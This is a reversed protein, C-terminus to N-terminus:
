APDSRRVLATVFGERWTLLDASEEATLGSARFMARANVGQLVWALVAVSFGGDKIPANRLGDDLDLGAALLARVDQLDRTETRSLLTCLKNTFIERATDVLISVGDVNAETPPEVRAVPDGVLDVKLTDASDTVALEAFGDFRQAVQVDLGDARLRDIVIRDVGDLRARGNWFLDLDRTTRHGLHFGALAAGGTLTWRPDVDAAACLVRRQLGTLRSDM